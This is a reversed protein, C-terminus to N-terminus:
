AFFRELSVVPMYTKGDPSKQGIVIGDQCELWAHAEFNGDATSVGIRPVSSFGLRSMIMHAALTRSLCTTPLPCFAGAQAIRLAARQIDLSPLKAGASRSQDANIWRIVRKLPIAALAVRIVGMAVVATALVRIESGNARLLRFVRKM